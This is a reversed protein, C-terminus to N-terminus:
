STESHTSRTGCDSVGSQSPRTLIPTHVSSCWCCHLYNRENIGLSTFDSSRRENLPTRISSRHLREVDKGYRNPYSQRQCEPRPFNIKEEAFRQAQRKSSSDEKRRIRDELLHESLDLCDNKLSFSESRSYACIQQCVTASSRHSLDRAMAWTM